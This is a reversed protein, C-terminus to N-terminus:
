CKVIRNVTAIGKKAMTSDALYCEDIQFFDGTSANPMLVDFVAGAPAAPIVNDVKILTTSIGTAPPFCLLGLLEGLPSADVRVQLPKSSRYVLLLYFEEGFRYDLSLPAYAGIIPNGGVVSTCTVLLSNPKPNTAAVTANNATPRYQRGLRPVFVQRQIGYGIPDGALVQEGGTIMYGKADELRLTGTGAAIQEASLATLRNISGFDQGNIQCGAELVIEGGVPVALVSTPKWGFSLTGGEFTVTGGNNIVTPGDCNEGWYCSQLNVVVHGNVEMGSGLADTAGCNSLLLSNSGNLLSGNNNFLWQTRTCGAIYCNHYASDFNSGELQWGVKSDTSRCNERLSIWSDQEWVNAETCSHIVMNRLVTHHRHRVRLGYAAQNYGNLIVGDILFPSYIVDESEEVYIMTMGHTMGVIQTKGMTGHIEVYRGRLDLPRTILAAGGPLALREGQIHATDIANQLAATDDSRGDFKAGFGRAYIM